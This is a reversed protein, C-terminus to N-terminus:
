DSYTGGDATIGFYDKPFVEGPEGLTLLYIMSVIAAFVGPM